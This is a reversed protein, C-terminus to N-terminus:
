DAVRYRLHVMGNGFRREDSLELKQRLNDPLFRAGGGVIM